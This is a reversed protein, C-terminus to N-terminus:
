GTRNRAHFMACEFRDTGMDCPRSPSAAGTLGLGCCFIHAYPKRVPAYAGSGRPNEGECLDLRRRAPSVLISSDERGGPRWDSGNWVAGCKGIRVICFGVGLPATM